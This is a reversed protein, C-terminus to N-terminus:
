RCQRGDKSRETMWQFFGNDTHGTIAMGSTVVTALSTVVAASGVM